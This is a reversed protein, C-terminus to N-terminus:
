ALWANAEGTMMLALRVAVPAPALVKVSPPRLAASLMMLPTMGFLLPVFVVPSVLCPAPTHTSLPRLM